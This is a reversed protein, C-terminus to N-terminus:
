EGEMILEALNDEGGELKECETAIKDCAECFISNPLAPVIIGAEECAWCNCEDM